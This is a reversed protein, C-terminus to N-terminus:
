KKRLDLQREFCYRILQQRDRDSIDTFRLMILQKGTEMKIIRVVEGKFPLHDLKGNKYNVLLWCSSQMGVEMPIDGECIFSVGGGGVDETVTVFRLQETLKVAIELDAPVRLFSRRQVKTIAEPEPIRILVLRIVEERFGLVTTTFYNKMGGESLFYVSLEDGAYLRKLRGTQVNIPVEMTIYSEGVEAIRSKLEQKAEDEDISNVQLYLVQNVKPLM